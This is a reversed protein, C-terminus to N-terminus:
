TSSCRAASRACSSSSCKSCFCESSNRPSGGTGLEIVPGMTGPALGPYTHAPIAPYAPAYPLTPFWSHRRPSFPFGTADGWVGDPLSMSPAAPSLVLAALLWSPCFFLSLSSSLISSPSTFDLFFFTTTLLFFSASPTSVRSHGASAAPQVHPVGTPDTSGGGISLFLHSVENSLATVLALKGAPRGVFRVFAREEASVPSGDIWRHIM